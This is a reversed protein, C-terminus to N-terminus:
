MVQLMTRSDGSEEKKEEEINIDGFGADLGRLKALDRDAQAKM